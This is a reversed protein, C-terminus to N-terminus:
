HATRDPVLGESRLRRRARRAARRRARPGQTAGSAFRRDSRLPEFGAGIRAPVVVLQRAPEGRAIARADLAGRRASGRARARGSALSLVLLEPRGLDRVEHNMRAIIADLLKRGREPEGGNCCCTPSRSKRMASASSPGRPGTRGRREVLRAALQEIASVPVNSTAPRALTCASQMSYSRWPAPRIPAVSSCRTPSNAPGCGTRATPLCCSARSMPRGRTTASWRRRRRSTALARSVGNTLALRAAESLPDLGRARECYM